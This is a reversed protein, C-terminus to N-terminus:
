GDLEAATTKPPCREAWAAKRSSGSDEPGAIRGQTYSGVNYAISLLGNSLYVIIALNFIKNINIVALIRKVSHLCVSKFSEFYLTTVDYLVFYFPENFKQQAVKYACQEIDAKYASL